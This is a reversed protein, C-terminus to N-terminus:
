THVPLVTPPQPSLGPPIRHEPHTNQLYTQGAQRGPAQHDHRGPDLRVPLHETGAWDTQWGTQLSSYYLALSCCGRMVGRGVALHSRSSHTLQSVADDASRNPRYALQLPDMSPPLFACILRGFCKIVVSHLQAILWIKNEIGM